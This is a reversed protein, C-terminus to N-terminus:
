QSPPQTMMGQGQTPAPSEGQPSVQQEPEPLEQEMLMGFEPGFIKSMFNRFPEVNIQTAINLEEPSLNKINARVEKRVFQTTAGEQSEMDIGTPAPENSVDPGMMGQRDPTMMEAM